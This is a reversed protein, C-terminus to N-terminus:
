HYDEERTWLVISQYKLLFSVQKFTRTPSSSPQSPKDSNNFCIYLKATVQSQRHRPVSAVLCLYNTFLFLADM